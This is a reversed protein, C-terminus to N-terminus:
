RYVTQNRTCGSTWDKQHVPYMGTDDTEGYEDHPQSHFCMMAMDASQGPLSLGRSRSFYASSVPNCTVASSPRNQNPLWRMAASICLSLFDPILIVVEAMLTYSEIVAVRLNHGTYRITAFLLYVTISLKEMVM